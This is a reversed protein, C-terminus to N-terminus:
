LQRLVMMLQIVLNVHTASQLSMFQLAKDIDDDVMRWYVKTLKDNPILDVTKKLGVFDSILSLPTKNYGNFKWINVTDIIGSEWPKINLSLKLIYPIEKNTTFKDRYYIFKKILIPIDFSTINDGCLIPFYKPTSRVGEFSIRNLEDMFAELVVFEDDNYIKKLFRKLKGDELFLRGYTIAVIKVYEPYNIAHTQYTEDLVDNDNHKINALTKWNEYLVKDNKELDEITPHILVCKVNFFFTEYINQKDFVTEFLQAM